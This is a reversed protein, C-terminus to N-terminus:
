NYFESLNYQEISCMETAPECSGAVSYDKKKIALHILEAVM